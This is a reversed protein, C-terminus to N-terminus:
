TAGLFLDALNCFASNADFWTGIVYPLYQPAFIDGLTAGGTALAPSGVFGTAWRFFLIAPLNNSFVIPLQFLIFVLLGWVYVGNRGFRAMDQFPALFQPTSVADAPSNITLLGWPQGNSGM